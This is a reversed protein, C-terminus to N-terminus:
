AKTTSTIWAAYRPLPVQLNLEELALHSRWNRGPTDTPSRTVHLGAAILKCVKKSKNDWGKEVWSNATGLIADSMTMQPEDRFASHHSSISSSPQPEDM